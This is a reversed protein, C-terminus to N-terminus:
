EGKIKSIRRNILFAYRKCDRAIMELTLNDSKIEFNKLIFRELYDGDVEDFDKFYDELFDRVTSTHYGFQVEVLKNDPKFYVWSSFARKDYAIAYELAEPDKTLFEGAHEAILEIDPIDLTKGNPFCEECFREFLEDSEENDFRQHWITIARPSATKEFCITALLKAMNGISRYSFHLVEGM